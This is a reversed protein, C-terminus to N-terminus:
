PIVLTKGFVEAFLDSKKLARAKETSLDGTGTLICRVEPGETTCHLDIVNGTHLYDLGDAVRLLAALSRIRKKDSPSLLLWFGTPRTRTSGGHLGAVLSIIGQERVPVPLDGSM